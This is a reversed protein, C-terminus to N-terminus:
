DFAPRERTSRKLESFHPNYALTEVADWLRLADEGKPARSIVPGFFSPGDPPAFTLVPTGIDGGCCDLATKTESRILDDYATPRAARALEGPYGLETLAADVGELEDLTEPQGQEHIIRGFASYLPLVASAGVEARVAAAVRLLELGRAHGRRYESPLERGGDRGENVMQLSIFRWAVETPRQAGVNVVWRSTIWAWPCAPDFFFDLDAM